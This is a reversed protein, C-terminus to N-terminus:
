CHPNVADKFGDHILYEKVGAVCLAEAPVRGIEQPKPLAGELQRWTLPRAVTVTEGSYSVRKSKLLSRWDREPCLTPDSLFILVDQELLGLAGSQLTLPFVNKRIQGQM